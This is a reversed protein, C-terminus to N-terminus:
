FPISADPSISLAFMAPSGILMHLVVSGVLMMTPWLWAVERVGEVHDAILRDKPSRTRVDGDGDVLEGLKFLGWLELTDGCMELSGHNLHEIM